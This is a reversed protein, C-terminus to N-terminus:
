DHYSINLLSVEPHILYVYKMVEAFVFSEQVNSKGGSAEADVNELSSFGTETRCYLNIAEFAAWSWDRYKLDKTARCAHYWTELVEPRLRFRGDSIHISKNSDCPNENSPECATTWTVFEGGLGTKTSEYIAGAADAISLGYDVLTQNDTVMGGLIFSGGAFWSLSEMSNQLNSGDWSPLLTWEPHGYPHSGIFQVTSDAAVLWRELYFGYLDSNYLYAKLLYEYLSDTLAGWSGQSGLIRGSDVSIFSSLLGPYPEGSAPQPRLLYEEAKRALNAYTKNLDLAAIFGLIQIVVDEKEFIIATPLSDIATAGWGGFDDECTNTVPHLTDYDFCHKHYGDWAHQFAAVIADTRAIDFAEFAYWILDVTFSR